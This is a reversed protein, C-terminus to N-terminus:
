AAVFGRCEIAMQSIVPSRALPRARRQSLQGIRDRRFWASANDGDRDAEQADSTQREKPFKWNRNQTKDM